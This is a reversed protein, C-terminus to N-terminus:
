DAKGEQSLSMIHDVSEVLQGHIPIYTRNNIEDPEGYNSNNAGEM